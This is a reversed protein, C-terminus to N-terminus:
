EALGSRTENYLYQVPLFHIVYTGSINNMLKGVATHQFYAVLIKNYIVKLGRTTNKYKKM